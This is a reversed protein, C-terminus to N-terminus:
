NWTHPWYLLGHTAVEDSGWATALPVQLCRKGVRSAKRTALPLLTRAAAGKMSLMMERAADPECGAPVPRAALEGSICASAERGAVECTRAVARAALLYPRRGSAASHPNHVRRAHGHLGKVLLSLRSYRITRADGRIIPLWVDTKAPECITPPERERRCRM